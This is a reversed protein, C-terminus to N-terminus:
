GLIQLIVRRSRRKNDLEVFVVQQWTGLLMKNNRFPVTLSPGLFSARVHSHGNGDHWRLEHKYDIGKPFLRELAAPLDLLLGPEYEITTVAGTSGPVFITVVGDEISSDRLKSNVRETIDVIEVEGKTDFYLEETVVSM